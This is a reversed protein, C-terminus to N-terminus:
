DLDVRADTYGLTRLARIKANADSQTRLPGLKLLYYTQGDVLKSIVDSPGLSKLAAKAVGAEGQNLYSAVHVFIDHAPKKYPAAAKVGAVKAAEVISGTAQTATKVAGGELRSSVVKVTPAADAAKREATTTKAPAAVYSELPARGIYQVRVKATGQNYFGLKKAAQKSVDIIRGKAFPGRDNVRLVLSKGNALNTVRVHTPLPLTPHAATLDNMNYTEGNATRRGHFKEGYWSAYGTRDYRTDERPVYRVGNITYPTGVKYYGGGRYNPTSPSSACNALAIGGIVVAAIRGLMKGTKMGESMGWLEGLVGM